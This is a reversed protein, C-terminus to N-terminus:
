REIACEEYLVRVVREIFLRMFKATYFKANYCMSLTLKGQWTWVYFLPQRTLVVNGLWFDTVEVAGHGYKGHLYRDLVGVSVILPDTPQPIGRPLPQNMIAAQNETYPALIAQLTSSNFPNRLQAYFPKLASANENFDSSTFSIPLSCLMATMPNMAPNTYESDVYPRYNFTGWSTYREGSSMCSNMKQLAVILAAHIATTITLDKERCAAIVATTTATPLRTGIRCFAGSVENVLEIPLGLSPINTTYEMLHSTAAIYDEQSINQPLRAAEDRGPSLNKSENILSMDLPEALFKFLLDMLSTAGIADIRWHSSCFIVASTKPFYHLTPLSSPRPSDLLEDVTLVTEVLFTKAMWSEIDAIQPTDYVMCDEQLHAAIQPQLFRLIRWAYKLATETDATSSVHRFTACARVAWQERNCTGAKRGVNKLLLEISNLPREFHGPFKEKWSTDQM